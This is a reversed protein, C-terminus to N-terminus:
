IKAKKPKFFLYGVGLGIAVGIAINKTREERKLKQEVDEVDQVDASGLWNLSRQM